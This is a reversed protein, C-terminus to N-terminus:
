NLKFSDIITKIDSEFKFDQPAWQAHAWAVVIKSNKGILTDKPGEAAEAADWQKLTYVSIAFPSFYGKDATSDGDPSAPFKTPLEVYYTATAGEINAAKMKYGVWTAPFEMSFGYASNTYTQMASDIFQFTSLIQDSIESLGDSGKIPFVINTFLTPNTVSYYSKVHFPGGDDTTMNDWSSVLINTSGLKIESKSVNKILSDAQNNTDNARLETASKTSTYFTIGVEGPIMGMHGDKKVTKTVSVITNNITSPKNETLNWDNPYKFSFGFDKNTYTKWDATSVTTPTSSVTPTVITIPTVTKTKSMWYQWGWLGAGILIVALLLILLWPRVAGSENQPEQEM